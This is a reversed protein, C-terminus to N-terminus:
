VSVKLFDAPRKKRTLDSFQNGQLFLVLDLIETNLCCEEQERSYASCKLNYGALQECVGGGGDGRYYVLM